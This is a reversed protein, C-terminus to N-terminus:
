AETWPDVLDIGTEMFDATNRTALAAGRSRCIAEIQGDFGSIPLGARERDIVICAYHEAAAADFPLVQDPFASFVEDAAALLLERRRGEPLRQTGYRIEAVTIATTSLGRTRALWSVVARAPAPRM